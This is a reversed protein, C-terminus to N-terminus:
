SCDAVLASAKENCAVLTLETIIQRKESDGTKALPENKTPRLQAVHWKDSQVLLVDKARNERSPVFEVTGWPTMYVDLLKTVENKKTTNRQNNNGTFGLAIGMQKSSLYVTDVKGGQLWAKEMASDFLVQTFARATGDTRANSGDGAPNVGTAGMEVNTAIFAVAGALRRATTGNGAVKAQNDFLAKEIDLKHEKSAKVVQYAMEKARGAADVADATGSTIVADKFIQAYNGLRVTASRPTATTDDGEVHANTGSARLTDTQWEHLTGSAKVKKCASLFPTDDPAISYIVDSLDERLGKLAYTQVTNTPAAM